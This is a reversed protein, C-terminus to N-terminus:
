AGAGAPRRPWQYAISVPDKGAGEMKFHLVAKAKHDLSNRDREKEGARKARALRYQGRRGDSGRWIWCVCLRRRGASPLSGKLPRVLEGVIAMRTCSGWQRSIKAISLFEGCHGARRM